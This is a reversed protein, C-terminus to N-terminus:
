HYSSMRSHRYAKERVRESFSPQRMTDWQPAVRGFYEKSYM